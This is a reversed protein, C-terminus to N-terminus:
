TEKLHYRGYMGLRPFDPESTNRTQPFNGAWNARARKSCPMKADDCDRHFSMDENSENPSMLPRVTLLILLDATTEGLGSAKGWTSEVSM